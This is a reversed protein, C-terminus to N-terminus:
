KWEVKEFYRELNGDLARTCITDRGRTIKIERIEQVGGVLRTLAEKSHTSNKLLKAVKLQGLRLQSDQLDLALLKAQPTIEQILAEANIEFFNINFSGTLRKLPRIAEDIISGDKDILVELWTKGIQDYHLTLDGFGQDLSFLGDWKKPIEIAAAEFFEVCAYAGAGLDARKLAELEHVYDNLGCIASKVQSNAKQWFLSTKSEQGILVSFHHHISNLLEQDAGMEYQKEISYSSNTNIIEICQNLQTKLFKEDRVSNAFGVFRNKILGSSKLSILLCKLWVNAAEHSLVEWTLRLDKSFKLEIHVAENQNRM